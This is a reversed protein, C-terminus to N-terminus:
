PSARYRNASIRELLGSQLALWRASRLEHGYSVLAAPVPEGRRYFAAVAHARAKELENARLWAGDGDLEGLVDSRGVNRTGYRHHRGNDDVWTPM